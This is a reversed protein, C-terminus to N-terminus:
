SEKQAGRIQNYVMKANEIMEFRPVSAAGTGPFAGGGSWWQMPHEQGFTITGRRDAKESLSVDTLTRLNLSKSKRAFLGSVIIVRQDTVGYHTKKRQKADVIFRGFIMYLGVLVFPVGFLPFIIGAPGSEKNLTGILAMIEWFIAFGGWLLSFPIMFVDSSRLLMGQRPRGAWLLSESSDLEASIVMEAEQRM